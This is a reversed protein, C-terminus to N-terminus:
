IHKIILLKTNNDKMHTYSSRLRTALQFHPTQRDGICLITQRDTGLHPHYPGSECPGQNSAPRSKHNVIIYINTAQLYDFLEQLRKEATAIARSKSPMNMIGVIFLIHVLLHPSPTGNTLEWLEFL